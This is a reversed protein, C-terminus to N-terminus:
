DRLDVVNSFNFRKINGGHSKINRLVEARTKGLNQIHTVLISWEPHAIAAEVNNYYTAFYGPKAPSKDQVTTLYKGHAVGVMITNIERPLLPGIQKNKYYVNVAKNCVCEFFWGYFQEDYNKSSVTRELMEAYCQIYSIKDIKEQGLSYLDHTAIKEDLINPPGIIGDQMAKRIAEQRQKENQIRLAELDRRLCFYNYAGAYITRIKSFPKTAGNRMVKNRQESYTYGEIEEDKLMDIFDDYSVAVFNGDQKKLEVGVRKVSRSGNADRVLDTIVM